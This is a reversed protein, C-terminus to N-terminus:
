ALPLVLKVSFGQEPKSDIEVFGVHARAIRDVLVLGLGHEDAHGPHNAETSSPMSDQSSRARALRSELARLESPAAGAGNDVVSVVAFADRLELGVRISCGDPNHLRANALANEVGRTLLREDGLVVASAADSEIDLEIPHKNDLGSNVHTAVVSRLLRPLLVREQHLPQMDYDLQSAANLDAVLDKIKLGQTRIVSAESRTKEPATEDQAISEAHGLILSLPTRIDHSVGRIWNARATDKQEIVSSTDTIKDGIERLDGKLSLASPRGESLGDLADVIPAVARQTRRRSIFFAAFLIALDVVFILLVYLPMNQVTATPYYMSTSWYSGKPFGVALLGDERDWFFAPYDAINSYRVAMAIDNLSFHLPADEPLNQSWVVAGDAGILMSWAEQAALENQAEDTLVYGSETRALGQDVSRVAMSPTGNSTIRESEGIAIFAYLFFDVVIVVFAVLLFALLQKTFFRPLGERKAKRAM